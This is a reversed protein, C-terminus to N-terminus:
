GRQADPLGKLFDKVAKADELRFRTWKPSYYEAGRYGSRGETYTEDLNNGTLDYRDQMLVVPPDPEVRTFSAKGVDDYWTDIAPLDPFRGTALFIDAHVIPFCNNGWKDGGTTYLISPAPQARVTDDWGKTLMIGDDGWSPLIWEGVAVEILHAYYYASRAYGYREPAEWVYDIDLTRAHTRTPRDDRDHALLIELRDPDSATERLSEVSKTLMKIRRRSPLLVSIMGRARLAPPTMSLPIM